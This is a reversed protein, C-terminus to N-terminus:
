SWYVLPEATTQVGVFCSVTVRTGRLTPRVAHVQTANFLILDGTEPRLLARSERIRERDLGYSAKWRRADYEEDSYSMGWLELEGGEESPQLYVNAALQATLRAALPFTAADRRLIDQHPIAEAKGRFVRALGVFMSKGNMTLLQAGAPWLEELEVRLLDIPSAYPTCAGRLDKMTEAAQAFYLDRLEDSVLTEFFSMGVRGIDGANAYFGFRPHALLRRAVEASTEKAYYGKIRLALARGQVLKLLNERTLAPAEIIRAEAATEKEMALM